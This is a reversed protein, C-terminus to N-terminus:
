RVLIMRKAKSTNEIMLHYIYIGSALPQGRDGTGDWHVEFAGPFLQGSILTRVTQGLNNYIILRVGIGLLFEEPVTFRITTESNFPNPFNQPLEIEPPFQHTDAAPDAHIENIAIGAAASLGSTLVSDGGVTTGPSYRRNGSTIAALHPIFSGNGDPHRTFSQDPEEGSGYGRREITNGAADLVLITDVQSKLGFNVGLENGGNAVFVAGPVGAPDGGGFVVVFHGPDVMTGPPFTHWRGSTGLVTGSVLLIQWGSIDLANHNMNILEVFQDDGEHTIGDGNADGEESRDLDLVFDVAPLLNASADGIIIQAEADAPGQTLLRLLTVEFFGPNLYRFIDILVTDQEPILFIYDGQLVEKPNTTLIFKRGNIEGFIRKIGRNVINWFGDINFLTFEESFNNVDVEDLKLAPTVVTSSTLTREIVGSPQAVVATDQAAIGFFFLIIGWVQFIGGPKPHLYRM